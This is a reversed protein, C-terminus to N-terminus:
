FEIGVNFGTRKSQLEDDDGYDVEEESAVSPARESSMGGTEPATSQSPSSKTHFLSNRTNM